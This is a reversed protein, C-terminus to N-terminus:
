IDHVHVQSFKSFTVFFGQSVHGLLHFSVNLAKLCTSFLELKQWVTTLDWRLASDFGFYTEQILMKQSIVILIGLMSDSPCCDQAKYLCKCAELWAWAWSPWVQWALWAWPSQAALRLLIRSYAEERFTPPRRLGWVRWLQSCWTRFAPLPNLSKLTQM